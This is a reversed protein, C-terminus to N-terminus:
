LEKVFYEVEGVVPHSGLGKSLLGMRRIYCIAARNYVSPRGWVMSAGREKMYALMAHGAEMAHKGRAVKLSILHCEYIGPASWQFIACFGHDELVYNNPDDAVQDFELPEESHRLGVFIMSRVDPQNAIANLLSANELRRM